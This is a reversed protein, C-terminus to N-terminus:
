LFMPPVHQFNPPPCDFTIFSYIIIFVLMHLLISYFFLFTRFMKNSLFIESGRLTIREPVSMAKLKENRMKQNFVTFPNMNDDYMQKYKVEVADVDNQAEVDRFASKKSFKTKKKEKDKEQQTSAVEPFMQIYRIKEYLTVNDSRLTRLENLQVEVQKRLKAADTELDQVRKRFRDRQAKVIDLMSQNKPGASLSGDGRPEPSDSGWQSSSALLDVLEAKESIASMSSAPRNLTLAPPEPVPAENQKSTANAAQARWLDEELKQILTKQEQGEREVEALLALKQTLETKTDQLQVKLKTIQADLQRNKNMLLTELRQEAQLVGSAGKEELEMEIDNFEVAQLVRLKQKLQEVHAQTPRNQLEKNLDSILNDKRDMALQLAKIMEELERKDIDNQLQYSRLQDSLQSIITEKRALEMEADVNSGLSSGGDQGDQRVKKRLAELQAKLENREKEITVIKVSARDIEMSLMDLESQKAAQMQEMRNKIDFLNTQTTDHQRRVELVAEQAQQVQRQLDREREHGTEQSRQMEERLLKEKAEVMEGVRLDMQTEMQRIKDELRRITNEQNKLLSFESKYDELEKKIKRNVADLEVLQNADDVACTLAPVPDPAEFLLKYLSLFANEAYKARVTLKDIEEQYNKLLSRLTKLKEEDSNKAFAKTKEALEKRGKLSNEQYDAIEIGQQDLEARRGDLNVGKWFELVASTLAKGAGSSPTSGVLGGGEANLENM